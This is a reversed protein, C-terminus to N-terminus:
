LSLVCIYIHYFLQPVMHPPCSSSAMCVFLCLPGYGSLGMCYHFILVRSRSNACVQGPTNGGKIRALEVTTTSALDMKGVDRRQALRHSFPFVTAWRCRSWGELPFVHRHWSTAAHRSGPACGYSNGDREPPVGILAPTPGCPPMATARRQAFHVPEKDM